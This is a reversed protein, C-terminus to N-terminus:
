TIKLYTETQHKLVESERFVGHLFVVIWHSQAMSYGGQPIEPNADKGYIAREHEKQGQHIL